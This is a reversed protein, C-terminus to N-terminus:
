KINDNDYIPIHFIIKTMTRDNIYMSLLKQQNM